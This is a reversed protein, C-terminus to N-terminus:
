VPDGEGLSPDTQGPDGQPHIWTGADRFNPQILKVGYYSLGLYGGILIIVFLGLLISWKKM